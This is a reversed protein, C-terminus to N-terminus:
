AGGAAAKVQVESAQTETIKPMVLELIGDKLKATTKSADVDSPLDVSRFIETSCHEEYVSKGNKGAGISERKGSIALCRPALSVQIENASFGPLEAMVTLADESESINLHVPHLLEAEAQVWHDVHHGDAAGHDMFLEFARREIAARIQNIREQITLPEALQVTTSAPISQVPILKEAPQPSALKESM